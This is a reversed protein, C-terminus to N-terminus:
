KVDNGHGRTLVPYIQDTAFLLREGILIRARVSYSHNQDIRAPDYPIEFRIPVQGPNKLRISGVVVAPADAKSVDELAAEFVAAPTLAIRERYTATGKVQATGPATQVLLFTWLTGFFAPLKATL